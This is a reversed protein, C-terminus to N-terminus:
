GGSSMVSHLRRFQQRPVSSLRGLFRISPHRKRRRRHCSPLVALSIEARASPAAPFSELHAATVGAHMAPGLALARGEQLLAMAGAHTTAAALAQPGALHGALRIVHSDSGRLLSERQLVLILAAEMGLLHRRLSGTWASLMARRIHVDDRAAWQTVEAIRGAQAPAVAAPDGSAAQGAAPFHGWGLLQRFTRGAAMTLLDSAALPVWALGAQASGEVM